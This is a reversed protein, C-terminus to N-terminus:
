THRSKNRMLSLRMARSASERLNDPLDKCMSDVESEEQASLPALQPSSAARAARKGPTARSAPHGKRSLKFEIDSVAFGANALRALYIDKNASFDTLRSSTDVYVGLVPAAGNVRPARVYVGCTHQREVDGNAGFWARAARQHDSMRRAMDGRVVGGVISGLSEADNRTSAQALYTDHVPATIRAGDTNDCSM